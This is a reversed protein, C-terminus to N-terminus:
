GAAIAANIRDAFARAKGKEFISIGIDTSGSGRGEVRLAARFAGLVLFAGVLLLAGVLLAPWAYGNGGVNAAGLALLILGGILHRVRIGTSAGASAVNSLPLCLTDPGSPILGLLVNARDGGLQKSTLVLRSSLFFHAPSFRFSASQLVREGDALMVHGPLETALREATLRGAELRATARTDTAM